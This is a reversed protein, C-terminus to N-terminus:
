FGIPQVPKTHYEFILTTELRAVEERSSFSRFLLQQLHSTDQVIVHVLFDNSGAIHFVGSVEDLSLVYDRFAEVTSHTHRGLRIAILASLDQGLRTYDIEAHFGKFIGEDRLRRFREACSSPALGIGAALEKNSLRADQQLLQILKKNIRDIIM